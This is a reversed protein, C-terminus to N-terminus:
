IYAPPVAEMLAELSGAPPLAAEGILWPLTFDAETEQVGGCRIPQLEWGADSINSQQLDFLAYNLQNFPVCAHHHARFSESDWSKWSSSLLKTNNKQQIEM